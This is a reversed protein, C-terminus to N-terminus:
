AARVYNRAAERRLHFAWYDDWDGNTHL